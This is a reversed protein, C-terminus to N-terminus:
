KELNQYLKTLKAVDENRGSSRRAAIVRQYMVQDIQAPKIELCMLQARNAAEFRGDQILAESLEWYILARQDRTRCSILSKKIARLTKSYNM